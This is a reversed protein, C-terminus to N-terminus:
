LLHSRFGVVKSYFETVIKISKLLFAPEVAPM